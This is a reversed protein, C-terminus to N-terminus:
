KKISSKPPFGLIKPEVGMYIFIHTNGTHNSTSTQAEITNSIKTKQTIKM